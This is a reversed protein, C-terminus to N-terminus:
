KFNFTFISNSIQMGASPQDLTYHNSIPKVTLLCLAILCTFSQLNNLNKM